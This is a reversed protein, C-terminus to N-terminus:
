KFKYSVSFTFLELDFENNELGSLNNIPTNEFSIQTYELNLFLNEKFNKKAVIGISKGDINRKTTSTADIVKLDAKALGGKLGIQLESNILYGLQFSSRLLNSIEDTQSGGDGTYNANITGPLVDINYSINFNTNVSQTYSVGLNLVQDDDEFNYDTSSVFNGSLDIDGVNNRSELKTNSVGVSIDFGDFNSKEATLAINTQSLLILAGPLIYKVNYKMFFNGNTEISIGVVM